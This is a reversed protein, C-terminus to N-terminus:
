GGTGAFLHEPLDLGRICERMELISSPSVAFRTIGMKLFSEALTKDAAAVGCIGCPIGAHVAARVTASILQLVATHTYTFLSGISGNMRDVALTFQTLDDSEIMFFDVRQALQSANLAAGPTEILLGLQVHEDFPMNAQRLEQKCEEIIQRVEEIEQTFNVFPILISLNGFASARLLARIQASFFHPRRLSSRVGRCGMAPNEELSTYLGACLKDARMNLTRVAVPRRNMKEVVERYVEFQTEEDPTENFRTFLYETCFIGIGEGDNELVAKTDAAQFIHGDVWALRGDRTKSPLGKLMRLRERNERLERQKQRYATLTREDPEAIVVGEEGDVILIDAKKLSRIQEQMGVVAPIGRTRALIAAHSVRSGNSTVLALVKERDMQILESPMFCDSLLISQESIAAMSASPYGCLIRVIRQSADLVDAGRERLYDDDLRFLTQAFHEGALQVACQATYQEKKILDYTKELFHSDGLMIKQIEFILSEDFGIENLARQRLKELADLAQCKAHEFRILEEQANTTKSLAVPQRGGDFIILQGIAIGRSAGIGKLRKM